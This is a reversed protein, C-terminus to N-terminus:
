ASLQSACVLCASEEQKIPGQCTLCQKTGIQQLAPNVSVRQDFVFCEGDYHAGGVDSFYNLIGGELQYVESFGADLLHLGAKECRIGGTCFMVVPKKPDLETVAGPLESFDDINLNVADHFTGFRFEYDNRTDLITIDRKEDLWQKFEQPQIAPARNLEARVEPRKFTIIEEKLKVKMFRFPIEASFSERYTIDAFRVDEAFFAKIDAIEGYTGALTINIGELSLLITGKINLSECKELLLVRLDSLNDLAIFKYGAINTIQM